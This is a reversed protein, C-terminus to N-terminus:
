IVEINLRLKGSESKSFDLINNMEITNTSEHVTNM